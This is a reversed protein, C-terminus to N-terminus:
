RVIYLRVGRYSLISLGTLAVLGMAAGLILGQEFYSMRGGQYQKIKRKNLTACRAHAGSSPEQQFSKLESFDELRYSCSTTDYVSRYSALVFARDPIDNVFVESTKVFNGVYFAEKGSAFVYIVQSGLGSNIRNFLDISHDLSRTPVLGIEIGGPPTVLFLSGDKLIDLGQTRQWHMSDVIAHNYTTKLWIELDDRKDTSVELKEKLTDMVSEDVCFIRPVRYPNGAVGAASARKIREVAANLNEKASRDVFGGPIGHYPELIRTAPNMGRVLPGTTKSTQLDPLVAVGYSAQAFAEHTANDVSSEFHFAERDLTSWVVRQLITNTNPTSSSGLVIAPSGAALAAALPAIASIIPSSSLQIVLTTGLPALVNASKARKKLDRERALIDHFDLQEYLANIGDLTATLEVFAVEEIAKRDEKVAILIARSDQSLQAHLAALQKQRELVNELRGEIWAISVRELVDQASM